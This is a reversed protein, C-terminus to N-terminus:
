FGASIIFFFVADDVDDDDDDDTAATCAVTLKIWGKRDNALSAFM